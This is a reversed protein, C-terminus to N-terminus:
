RPSRYGALATRLDDQGDFRRRKPNSNVRHIYVARIRKPYRSQIEHYIEPDQEGDDGVLIFSVKPLRGLIQEIHAIKYARQDFLPEGSSDDTVKKTILVGRPFGAHDLFEQIHGSLQRPSASLYFIPASSPHANKAALRRYFDAVGPVAKRQLPNKLFTNELLESKDTVNSVLITDDVDSILGLTNDEPMFLVTGRGVVAGARVSVARWGGATDPAVKGEIRFYGEEDSVASWHRDGIAVTVSVDEQEDNILRGLTRRLNRWWGDSQRERAADRAEIVRGELVFSGHYAFAPYVVVSLKDAALAAASWLLAAAWLWRAVPVRRSIM